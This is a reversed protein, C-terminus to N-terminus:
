RRSAHGLARKIGRVVRPLDRALALDYAEATSRGRRERPGPDPKKVISAAGVELAAIADELTGKRTFFAFPVGPFEARIRRALALGGERSQGLRELVKRIEAQAELFRDWARTLEARDEVTGTGSEPFYLDLVFADPQERGQGRLDELAGSLSTGAGVLLRGGLLDRFRRVEEPDDDVFCVAAPPM